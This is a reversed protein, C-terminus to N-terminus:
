VNDVYQFFLICFELSFEINNTVILVHSMFEDISYM